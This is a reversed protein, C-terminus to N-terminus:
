GGPPLNDLRNAGISARGYMLRNKGNCQHNYSYNEM